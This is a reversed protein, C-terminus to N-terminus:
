EEQPPPEQKELLKFDTMPHNVQFREINKIFTNIPIFKGRLVAKSHRFTRVSQTKM